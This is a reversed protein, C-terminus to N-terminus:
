MHELKSGGAGAECSKDWAWFLIGKIYLHAFECFSVSSQGPQVFNEKQTFITSNKNKAWSDEEWCSIDDPQAALQHLSSCTYVM